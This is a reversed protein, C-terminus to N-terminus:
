FPRGSMFAGEARAREIARAFQETVREEHQLSHDRDSDDWQRAEHVLVHCCEHVFIHDLGEDTEHMVAPMNWSILAHLYEWQVKTCAVATNNPVDNVEFNQRVYEHTIVWGPAIVGHWKDDLARIRRQQQEFEEDNM